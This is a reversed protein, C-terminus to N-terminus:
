KFLNEIESLEYTVISKKGESNVYPNQCAFLQDIISQMEEETLRKGKKISTSKALSRALNEAIGLQFEINSEYAELFKDLTDETSNEELEAPTAHVIISNDGFNEIDYGIHNLEDVMNILLTYREPTYNLTIPFLLKQSSGQGESLCNKYKEYLIREHAYCQHILVFGSKIQHVIYNNHIQFPKSKIKDLSSHLSGEETAASRYITDDTKSIQNEKIEDYLSSWKDIEQKGAKSYERSPIDRGISSQVHEFQREAEFDIMPRLSYKGLAHKIAVNLFNYVIREEQFKIEHKTPHVNIDIQSPDINLNLVYFPHVDKTLLDGYALRIAHNLYNSKIFRENVFLYQEGRSKKASDAQGVFGQVSFADTEEQVPLLKENYKKGFISVVRQRINSTPLYYLETGNHYVKFFIEPKILAIRKFEELIKSLETADTKLFNRRAPVNFFLNKVAISSGKPTQCIEQTEIQSGNIVIRTGVEKDATRTKLEVHAISAISALAEGRFGMTNIKFLDAAERIKSTAHREFSLRADTESMGKGNDVVQILSKGSDKLIIEIETSGADISNELLEKIVSAPRQIVEGAAIQNAISEPLLQIIDAM